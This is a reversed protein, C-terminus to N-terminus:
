KLVKDIDIIEFYPNQNFLYKLFPIHNSGYIILYCKDKKYDVQRMVNNFNRLNTGYWFTGVYETSSMDNGTGMSLFYNWEEYEAKQLKKESNLFLLFESLSSKQLLSDQKSLKYPYPLDYFKANTRTSDNFNGLAIYLDQIEKDVVNKPKYTTDTLEEPQYNMGFVKIHGLKKAVKMGLQFIENAKTRLRIPENGRQYDFYISDYFAQNKETFELFIKDPKQNALKNVIENVEKQRKETFLNSHLKSTSDLSQNFHFTGLLIVKIKKPSTQAFVTTYLITLLFTAIIQKM